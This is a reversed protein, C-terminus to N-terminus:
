KPVNVQKLIGQLIKKSADSDGSDKAFVRHEMVPFFIRQIDDPNVFDRGNVYACAQAMRVLNLGARPSAALRVGGDNRTVQVLSIVYRELSEDIHIGRVTARAKLIEEPNTVAKLTDIPRSTRHARLIELETEASPYGVAIRVMFRDMQAEPLPFVGHFEVPNETALVMFLEPLKYREGELSVQREEMAELLASQTRPSARNIEDALLVQTFVPGKKIEFEGTNAKFVAGGTVDAPLLDPTFQIRAFDAGIAAALAKSLTTKGTGPVDEVLVHGDALLAMVLLEVTESKGLLVGNLAHILDKVM